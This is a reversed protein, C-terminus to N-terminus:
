RRSWGACAPADCAAVIPARRVVDMPDTAPDDDRLASLWEDFTPGNGLLALAPDTKMTMNVVIVTLAVAIVTLVGKTYWDM